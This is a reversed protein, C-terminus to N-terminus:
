VSLSLNRAFSVLEARTHVGLKDFLRLTHTKATSESIALADAVARRSLGSAVLQLVRVEAPRLNYLVRIGELPLNLESNPEAVFVAAVARTRPRDSRRELPLVHVITGTGDPRRVPIGSSPGISEGPMAAAAVTQELQGRVLERPIDLRGNLQTIPDGLRLMQEALSNSYVIRCGADVLVVASGVAGLAAEFTSAAVSQAELLNSILVARRMHPALNRFTEVQADSIPPMSEHQGLSFTAVMKPSFELILALQDVLKQPRVFREYFPNGPWWEPSSHDMMKIPEEVPLKSFVAVGGWLQQVSDATEALVQLFEPSINTSAQVSAGSPLYNIGIAGLHLGVYRRIRDITDSWLEPNLVADYVYGILDMETQVIRDM